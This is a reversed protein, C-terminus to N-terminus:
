GWLADDDTEDYQRVAFYLQGRKIVKGATVLAAMLQNFQDLNMYGMFAAYMVGGPAGHDGAAEVAEIVCDCLLKLMVHPDTKPQM